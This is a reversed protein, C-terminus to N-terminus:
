IGSGIENEAMHYFVRRADTMSRSRECIELLTDILKFDDRCKLQLIM